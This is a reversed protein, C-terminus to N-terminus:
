GAELMLLFLHVSPVSTCRLTSNLVRCVSTLRLADRASLFQLLRAAVAPLGAWCEALLKYAEQSCTRRRELEHAM